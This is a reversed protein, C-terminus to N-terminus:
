YRWLEEEGVQNKLRGEVAKLESIQADLDQKEAPSVKRRRMEMVREKARLCLREFSVLGEGLQQFDSHGGSPRPASGFSQQQQGPGSPRRPLDSFSM